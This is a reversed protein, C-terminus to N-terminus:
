WGEGTEVDCNQCGAHCWCRFDYVYDRTLLRREQMSLRLYEECILKGIQTEEKEPHNLCEKLCWLISDDDLNDDDLLIHLMGGAECGKIDYLCGIYARVTELHPSYYKCTKFEYTSM